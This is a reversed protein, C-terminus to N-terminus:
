HPDQIEPRWQSSCSQQPRLSFVPSLCNSDALTSGQPTILLLIKLPRWHSHQCNTEEYYLNQPKKCLLTCLVGTVGATHNVSVARVRSEKSRTTEPHRLKALRQTPHIWLLDNTCHESLSPFRTVWGATRKGTLLVTEPPPRPPPTRNRKASLLRAQPVPHHLCFSAIKKVQRHTIRLNKESSHQQLKPSRLDRLGTKM